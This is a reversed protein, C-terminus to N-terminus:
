QGAFWQSDDARDPEPEEEEPEDEYDFPVSSVQGSLRRLRRTLRSTSRPSIRTTGANILRAVLIGHRKEIKDDPM